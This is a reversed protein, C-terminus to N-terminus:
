RELVAINEMHFTQPFLDFPQIFSCKYEGKRIIYDVDRALTQPNCSIYVIREPKRKLIEEIVGKSMGKKPPDVIARNFKISKNKKLVEEIDGQYMRINEIGKKQINMGLSVISMPEYEIATVKKATRSMLMSLIGVGSYGDMVTSHADLMLYDIANRYLSEAMKDNVQLFSWPYVEFDENFYKVNMFREGSFHKFEEGLIKNGPRNRISLYVGTINKLEGLIPINNINKHLVVIIYVGREERRLIIHSIDNFSSKDLSSLIRINENILEDQIICGHDIDVINNSKIFYFGIHGSKVPLQAKNRYGLQVPSPIIPKVEIDKTTKFRSLAEGIFNEKIKLQYKYDINQLQCGGCKEYYPCVPNIRHSSHEIIEVIEGIYYNKKKEKIKVICVDGPVGWRTFITVGEYRGISYGNYIIKDIKLKVTSDMKGIASFRILSTM